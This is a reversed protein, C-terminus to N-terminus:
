PIFLFYLERLFLGTIPPRTQDKAKLRIGVM